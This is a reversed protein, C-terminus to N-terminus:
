QHLYPQPHHAAALSLQFDRCLRARAFGPLRPGIPLQVVMHLPDGEQHQRQVQRWRGQVLVGQVLVDNGLHRCLGGNKM